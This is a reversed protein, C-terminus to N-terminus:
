RSLFRIFLLRYRRHVKKLLYHAYFIIYVIGTLGKQLLSLIIVDKWKNKISSAETIHKNKSVKKIIDRKEISTTLKGFQFFKHICGILLQAYMNEYESITESSCGTAYILDRMNDYVKVHIEYCDRNFMSFLSETNERVYHYLCENSVYVSACCKLYEINFLTDEGLSLSEDFWIGHAKIIDSRFLKCYPGCICILPYMKNMEELLQKVTIVGNYSFAYKDCKIVMSKEYTEMILGSYFADVNNRVTSTIALELFQTELTDDSDVFTIFEGNAISLGANRASSVGGNRKHLVRIRESTKEFMDCIAPSNDTSGDDILILEFDSFTQRLISEVCFRLKDETNYVPVIVSVRPKM